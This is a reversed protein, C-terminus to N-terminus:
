PGCTGPVFGYGAAARLLRKPWPVDWIREEGAEIALLLREWTAHHMGKPRVLEARYESGARRYLKGLHDHGRQLRTERTSQYALHWALRGMFHRGGPPCYLRGVLQGSAPCSFWWRWGGFRCPTRQLGVRDDIPHGKVLYILRVHATAPDATAVAFGISGAPAGGRNWAMAGGGDEGPLIAAARFLCRTTLWLCNEVAARDTSRSVHSETFFVFDDTM